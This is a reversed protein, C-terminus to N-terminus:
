VGKKGKRKYGGGKTLRHEREMNLATAVAVKPPKGEKRLHSIKASVRAQAAKGKVPTKKAM